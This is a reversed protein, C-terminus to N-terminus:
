LLTIAFYKRTLYARVRSRQPFSVLFFKSKDVSSFFVIQLVVWLNKKEITAVVVFWLIEGGDSLKFFLFKMMGFFFVLRIDGVKDDLCLLDTEVSANYCFFLYIISCYCVNKEKRVSNRRKKLFWWTM